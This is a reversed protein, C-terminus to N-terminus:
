KSQYDANEYLEMAAKSKDPQIESDVIPSSANALLEITARFKVAQVASVVM